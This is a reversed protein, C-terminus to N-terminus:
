RLEQVSVRCVEFDPTANQQKSPRMLRRLLLVCSIAKTFSRQANENGTNADRSIFMLATPPLSSLLSGIADTYRRVMDFSDWQSGVGSEKCVLLPLTRSGAAGVDVDLISFNVVSWPQNFHHTAHNPEKRDQDTQWHPVHICAPVSRCCWAMVKGGACPGPSLYLCAARPVSREGRVVGENM